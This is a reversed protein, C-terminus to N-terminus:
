NQLVRNIETLPINTSKHIVNIDVGNFYMTKILEFKGQEIGKEMGQEIGKEIGQEIGQKLAGNVMARNDRKVKTEYDFIMRANEEQSLEKLLVVAKKIDDNKTSLINFEELSKAKIFKLWDILNSDEITAPIKKLELTHIELTDTFTAGTSNDRLKFTNHYSDNNIMNYDLIIISIVKKIADYDDGSSIQETLMKATYFLVREEMHPVQLIQIEVNIVAKSKTHIKIDLVGIKDQMKEGKLQADVITITDYEDTPITLVSKLFSILIDSNKQSGFILKFIYDSKPSLLEYNKM